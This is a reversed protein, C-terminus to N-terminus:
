VWTRGRLIGLFNTAEGPVGLSHTSYGIVREVVVLYLARLVGSLSCELADISWTGFVRKLFQQM